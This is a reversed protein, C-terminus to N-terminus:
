FQYILPAWLGFMAEQLQVLDPQVYSCIKHQTITPPFLSLPSLYNAHGWNNYLPSAAGAAEYWHQILKQDLLITFRNKEALEPFIILEQDGIM